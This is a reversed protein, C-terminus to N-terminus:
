RSCAGAPAAPSARGGQARRGRARAVSAAAPRRAARLTLTVWAAPHRGKPIHARRVAHRDRGAIRDLAAVDGSRADNRATLDDAHGAAVARRRRRRGPHGALRVHGSSQRRATRSCTRAPRMLTVVFPGSFTTSNVGASSSAITSSAWRQSRRTAHWAEIRAEDCIATRAPTSVMSCPQSRSSAVARPMTSRPMTRTGVSRTMASIM